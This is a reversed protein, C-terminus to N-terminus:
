LERYEKIVNASKGFLHSIHANCCKYINISVQLKEEDAKYYAVPLLPKSKATTQKCLSPLSNTLKNYILPTFSLSDYNTLNKVEEQEHQITGGYLPKWHMNLINKKGELSM